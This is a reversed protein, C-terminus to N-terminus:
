VVYRAAISSAKDMFRKPDFNPNIEAFASMMDDIFEQLHETRTDNGIPMIGFTDSEAAKGLANGALSAIVEFHQRTM